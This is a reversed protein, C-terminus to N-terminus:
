AQGSATRVRRGRRRRRSAWAEVAVTAIATIAAAAGLEPGGGSDGGGQAPRFGEIIEPVAHEYAAIESADIVGDHNQDLVRFFAAADARFEKRTSGAM